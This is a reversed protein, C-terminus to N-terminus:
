PRMSSRCATAGWYRPLGSRDVPSIWSAAAKRAVSFHLAAVKQTEGQCNQRYGGEPLSVGVDAGGVRQYYGDGLALVHQRALHLELQRRHRHVAMRHGHRHLHFARHARRLVHARHVEDGLLVRHALHGREVEPRMGPAGLHARADAEVARLADRGDGLEGVAAEPGVLHGDFHAFGRAGVAASMARARMWSGLSAFRPSSTSTRMTMWCGMSVPKRRSAPPSRTARLAM